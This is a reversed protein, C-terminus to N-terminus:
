DYSSHVVARRACYSVGGYTRWVVHSSAHYLTAHYLDEDQLWIAGEPLAPLLLRRVAERVKAAAVRDRLPLIM